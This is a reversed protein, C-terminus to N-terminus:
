VQLEFRVAAAELGTKLEYVATEVSDVEKEWLRAAEKRAGEVSKAQVDVTYIVRYSKM